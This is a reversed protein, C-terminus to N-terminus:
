SKAVKLMERVRRAGNSIQGRGTNMIGPVVMERYAKTNHINILDPNVRMAMSMLLEELKDIEPMGRGKTPKAFSGQPTIRAFLFLHLRFRKYGKIAINLKNAKDVTSCEHGLTSQRAKGVYWPTISSGGSSSVGYVYCGCAYYQDDSLSDWVKDKLDNGIIPASLGSLTIPGVVSFRM